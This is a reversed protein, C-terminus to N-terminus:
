DHPSREFWQSFNLSKGPLGSVVEWLLQGGTYTKRKRWWAPNDLEYLVGLAKDLLINCRYRQQWDKELTTMSDHATLVVMEAQKLQKEKVTM